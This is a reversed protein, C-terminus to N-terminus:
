NEVPKIDDSEISFVAKGDSVKTELEFYHTDSDSDTIDFVAVGTLEDYVWDDINNLNMNVIPEYENGNTDKLSMLRQYVEFNDEKQHKARIELALYIGDGEAQFGVVQSYDIYQAGEVIVIYGDNFNAGEGLELEVEGSEEVDILTPGQEEPEETEEINGSDTNTDVGSPGAEVEDEGGCAAMVIMLTIAMFILTLNRKTGNFM